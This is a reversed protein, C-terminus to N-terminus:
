FAEEGEGFEIEETDIEPRDEALIWARELVHELERINGPWSYAALIEAAAPTLSKAPSTEAMRALFHTMLQPLDEAHAILAPTRILFV